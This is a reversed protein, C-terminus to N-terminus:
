AGIRSIRLASWTAVCYPVTYTLPIKWLLAAPLHGALLVNGQNILTLITGVVLATTAATRM